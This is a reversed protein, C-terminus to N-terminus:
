PMRGAVRLHAATLLHVVRALMLVEATSSEGVPRRLVTATVELAGVLLAAIIERCAVPDVPPEGLDVAVACTPVAPHSWELEELLEGLDMAAHTMSLDPDVAPDLALRLTAQQAAKALSWLGSLGYGGADLLLREVMLRAPGAWYEDRRSAQVYEASPPEYPEILSVQEVSATGTVRVQATM